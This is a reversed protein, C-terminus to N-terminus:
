ALLVTPTTNRYYPAMLLPPRMFVAFCQESTYLADSTCSSAIAEVAPSGVQSLGGMTIDFFRDCM